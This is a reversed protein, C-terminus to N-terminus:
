GGTRLGTVHLRWQRRVMDSAAEAPIAFPDGNDAFPARDIDGVYEESFEEIAAAESDAGHRYQARTAEPLALWRALIDAVVTAREDDNDLVDDILPRVVLATRACFEASLGGGTPMVAM